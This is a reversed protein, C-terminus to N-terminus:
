AASCHPVNSTVQILAKQAPQCKTSTMSFSNSELRGSVTEGPHTSSVMMSNFKEDLKMEQLSFNRAQFHGLFIEASRKPHLIADDRQVAGDDSM